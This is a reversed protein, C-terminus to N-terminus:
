EPEDIKEEAAAARLKNLARAEIQRIREKTVGMEAGVQKLTQPEQSHDLGFRSIIIKQEREDLASLIRKVQQERANQLSELEVADTRQDEKATFLEEGVTRFRDRHKFEQPITRAFNKMIAWSAYTSFKFGRGFDFKEVARILSMNGDSVLLFFDETPSVHKKAISVVLRLNSRVILNKVEVAKAYWAEIEDLESAKPRTDSLKDRLKSALHKIFNYKRFLHQEQERNLLPNDYLAALYPPLGAPPKTRRTVGENEPMPGLFEEARSEDEFVENYMYDLPLERVREARMDNVIRYISNRTRCFRKMLSEVAEGQRYRLYLDKSQQETLPGTASPFIALDPHAEDHQKITYRITEVSREMRQAVRRAVEAPCGGAKTLRQARDIIDAKESESLQSFKEGRAVRDRNGKVFRDVSSSLFGVRKRGDVIFRRSVLGKNRWRSITKTSVNFMESLDDITLIPEGAEEAKLNAAESVDEVFLRLDHHAEDGSMTDGIGETEPRYDTIRYRLYEYSYTRDPDIENLLNEAREVQEIKVERTAFRVQQDRLQRLANSTYEKSAHM